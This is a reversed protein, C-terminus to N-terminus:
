RLGNAPGHEQLLLSGHHFFVALWQEYGKSDRKDKGEGRGELEPWEVTVKRADVNCICQHGNWLVNARAYQRWGLMARYIIWCADLVLRQQQVSTWVQIEYTADCESASSDRETQPELETVAVRVHPFAAKALDDSDPNGKLYRAADLRVQRPNPSTDFLATFDPKSNLLKWMADHCDMFPNPSFLVPQHAIPNSM